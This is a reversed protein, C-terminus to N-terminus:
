SGATAPSNTPDAWVNGEDDTQFVRTPGGRGDTVRAGVTIPRGSRDRAGAPRPPEPDPAAPLDLLGDGDAWQGHADRPQSPNYRKSGRM